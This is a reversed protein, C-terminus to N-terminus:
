AIQGAHRINIGEKDEFAFGMGCAKVEETAM